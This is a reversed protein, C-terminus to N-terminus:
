PAFNTKVKPTPESATHSTRQATVAPPRVNASVQRAATTNNTTAAAASKTRMPSSCDRPAGAASSDRRRRDTPAASAGAPASAAIPVAGASRRGDSALSGHRPGRANGQNPVALRGSLRANAVVARGVHRETREAFLLHAADPGRKRGLAEIGDQ